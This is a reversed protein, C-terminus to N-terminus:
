CSRLRNGLQFVFDAGQAGFDPFQCQPAPPLFSSKEQHTPARQVRSHFSLLALRGDVHPPPCSLLSGAIRLNAMDGLLPGFARM